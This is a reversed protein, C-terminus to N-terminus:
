VSKESFYDNVYKLSYLTPIEQKNMQVHGEDPKSFEGGWKLGLLNAQQGLVKYGVSNGDWNITDNEMLWYFDVAQGWNHWGLGPIANTAWPGSAQPGVNNIVSALYDCGQCRLSEIEANVADTSRSRRWLKAQDELSRYGYYPVLDYSASKCNQILEQVLPAYIPDLLTFDITM